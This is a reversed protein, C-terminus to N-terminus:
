SGVPETTTTASDGPSTPDTPDDDQDCAVLTLALSLGLIMAVVRKKADSMQSVNVGPRQNRAPAVLHHSLQRPPRVEEWHTDM